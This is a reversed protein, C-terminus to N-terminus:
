NPLGLRMLNPPQVSESVEAGASSTAASSLTRECLTILLGAHWREDISERQDPRQTIRYEQRRGDAFGFLQCRPQTTDPDFARAQAPHIPSRSLMNPQLDRPKTFREQPQVRM